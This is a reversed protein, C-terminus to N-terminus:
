SLVFINLKYNCNSRLFYMSIDNSFLEHSFSPFIVYSSVTCDFSKGYIHSSIIEVLYIKLNKQDIIM